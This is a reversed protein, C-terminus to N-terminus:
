ERLAPLVEEAFREMQALRDPWRPVMFQLAVHAVGARAYTSLAEALQAPSGRLRSPDQAVDAATVEIPSCCTLAVADPDRGAEAAAARVEQFGARLEEATIRVFYPFWADGLRGARRRAPRGEGGVWVPLREQFAKPWLSVDAFRYHRGEYTCHEQTLLVRLAALAEDTM